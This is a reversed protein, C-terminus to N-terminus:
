REVKTFKIKVAAFLVMKLLLLGHSWRSINTEGYIRARYRVPVEVIKLNLRAAGFLLDFDGFPDFDGFYQRNSVIRNYNYKTLAKTGCLTDRIPQGLLWTYAASFFKNGILNLFRMAENEMPYVLRVGNVFEADNNAILDYFRHLDEPPVTIDADLIIFVDGTAVAFGARVADGKGVGTQRILRGNWAWDRELETSIEKFTDDTSNGEVFIVETGGPMIPIRSMIEAINGQENRAPIVVSLLPPNSLPLKIARAVMLNTVDLLRFPYIRALYRNMFNSVIPIKIPIFIDQQKGIVEFGSIRLLNELDTPTLWNQSLRPRLLRLKRLFTIPINWLNSHYNIIIRTDSSCFKTLSSLVTQVDWLENVLDSLIIYEFPGHEENFHAIQHADVEYFFLNKFASKARSIAVSSLDIGVGTRPHLSNLLEGGGCGLELVTSNEPISNKIINCLIRSYYGDNKKFVTSYESNWFNKRKETFALYEFHFRDKLKQTKQTQM